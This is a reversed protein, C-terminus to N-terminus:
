EPLQNHDYYDSYKGGVPLDIYPVGSARVRDIRLNPAELGMLVINYGILAFKRILTSQVSQSLPSILSTLSKPNVRYVTIDEFHALPTLFNLYEEPIKGTDWIVFQIRNLSLLSEIEDKKMSGSFFQESLARKNWFDYTSTEHGVYVRTYSFAPLFMGVYFTSLVHAYRPAVRDIYAVTDMYRDPIYINTFFEKKNVESWWYGILGGSASVIFVLITFAIFLNRLIRRTIKQAVERIGFVALIGAFVYPASYVYRLKNVHLIGATSLIYLIFPVVFLSLVFVHEFKLKRVVRPLSLVIFPLLVGFSIVYVGLTMPFVERRFTEYSWVTISSWLFRSALMMQMFFFFVLSVCFLALFGKVVRRDLTRNKTFLQSIGMISLTIGLSIVLIVQPITSAMIGGVTSLICLIISIYKKKQYFQIAHYAGVVMMAVGFFHHPRLSARSWPDMLTWWGTGIYGVFPLTVPPFPSAWFIALIAMWKYIGSFFLGALSVVGAYFIVLSGIIGVYYMQIDSLHAYQGIRGLILYLSHVLSPTTEETTYQDAEYLQIRGQRIVSLDFYYDQLIQHPHPYFTGARAVSGKRETPFLVMFILAGLFLIHLFFRFKM